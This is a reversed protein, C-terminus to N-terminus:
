YLKRNESTHIAGFCVKEGCRDCEAYLDIHLTKMGDLAGGSSARFYRKYESNPYTMGSIKHKFLKCLINMKKKNQILIKMLEKKNVQTGSAWWINPIFTGVNQGSVKHFKISGTCNAFYGSYWISGNKLRKYVEIAPKNYRSAIYFLHNM